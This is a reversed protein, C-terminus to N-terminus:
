SALDRRSIGWAGVLLCAIALVAVLAMGPWDYIGAMPQGLHRTLSLDLVGSPLRLSSGLLDFVTLGVALAATVGAALSGRGLGFLALGIGALAAAYLGGPFIGFSPKWPDTGSQIAGLATAAAVVLCLAALTAYVGAGSAVLWAGRRLPTSLLLDLRRESEDSAVRAVLVAGALAIFPLALDFFVIQLMGGTTRWDLGPFFTDMLRAANADGRFQDAFGPASLGILWAYSGIALGWVLAAPMAALFAARAPGRILFPRGPLGLRPLRITAGVDRREFGVIGIALLCAILVALPLLSGNDWSGAIPREAATWTLWSVDKISDFAPVAGSYADILYATALSIAGIGAAAGRGVWPAAAFAIAGGALGCLAMAAFQVLAAGLGIDDGPLRAFAIGALWTLVAILVVATTLGVVHVAVKELAIRRRSLPAAGLVEFSGSRVEGGLTGSLALISWAGLLLPMLNAVRWSLFGGLTTANIPQGTMSGIAAVAQTSEIADLRSALTAYNTGISSGYFFVFLGLGMGAILLSRRSDRMGKAFVSSPGRLPWGGPSDSRRPRGLRSRFRLGPLSASM